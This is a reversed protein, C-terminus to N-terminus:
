LYFRRSSKGDVMITIGFSLVPTIIYRDDLEITYRADDETIM